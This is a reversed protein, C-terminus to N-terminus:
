VDVFLTCSVTKDNLINGLAPNESEKVEKCVIVIKETPCWNVYARKKSLFTKLSVQLPTKKATRHYCHKVMRLVKEVFCLGISLTM